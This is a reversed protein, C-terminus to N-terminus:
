YLEKWQSIDIYVGYIYVRGLKGQCNANGKVIKRTLSFSTLKHRVCSCIFSTLAFKTTAKYLSCVWKRKAHYSRIETWQYILHKFYRMCTCWKVDYSGSSRFVCTAYKQVHRYNDVMQSNIANIISCIISFLDMLGPPFFLCYITM